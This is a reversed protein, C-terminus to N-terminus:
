AITLRYESPSLATRRKFFTSFSSPTSFELEDAIDVITIEPNDLLAKAKTILAESILDKANRHTVKKVIKNLHAPTVCLANAFFEVSHQEKCHTTIHSLFQSVLLGKRTQSFIMDNKQYKNYIMRIEHLFLTISNQGLEKNNISHEEKKSKLHIVKFLWLMLKFDTNDLSISPSNISNLFHFFFKQQAILNEKVVYEWSFVMVCVQLQEDINLIRCDTDKPILILDQATFEQIRNNLQLKISGSRILLITFNITKFSKNADYGKIQKIFCVFLGLKSDSEFKNNIFDEIM